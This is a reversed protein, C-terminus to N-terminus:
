ELSIPIPADCDYSILVLSILLLNEPKVYDIKYGELQCDTHNLGELVARSHQSEGESFPGNRAVGLCRKVKASATRVVVM